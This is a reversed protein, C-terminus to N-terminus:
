RKKRRIWGIMGLLGFAGLMLTSPEPVAVALLTGNGGAALQSTDWAFGTPDPLTISNFAGSLLDASLLQFSDGADITGSLLSIELDGALVLESSAATGRDVFLLDSELTDGNLEMVYLGEDELTGTAVGTGQVPLNLDIMAVNPYVGQDTIRQDWLLNTEALDGYVKVQFDESRDDFGQRAYVEIADLTKPGDLVIREYNGSVDDASHSFQGNNNSVGDITYNIDGWPGQPSSTITAGEAATAVDTGTVSETAVLERLQLFDAENQEVRIVLAGSLPNRTEGSLVTEVSDQGISGAGGVTQYLDILDAHFVRDFGNITLTNSPTYNDGDSFAAGGTYANANNVNDTRFGSGNTGVDFGFMTNSSLTIPTDFKWTIYDNTEISFGPTTESALPTFSTGSVSGARVTWDGTGSNSTRSKLTVSRLKYGVPSSGTTFSQGQFPRDSWPHGQDAPADYGGSLQAIDAGDVVPAWLSTSVVAGSAPCVIIAFLGVILLYRSTSM